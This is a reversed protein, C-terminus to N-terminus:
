KDCQTPDKGEKLCACADPDLSCGKKLAKKAFILGISMALVCGGLVLFTLLLTM